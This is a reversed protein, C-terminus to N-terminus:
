HAGIRQGEGDFQRRGDGRGILRRHELERGGARVDHGHAGRGAERDRGDVVIARGRRQRSGVQRDAAGLQGREIGIGADEGPVHGGEARASAGIVLDIGARDEVGEVAGIRGIGGDDDGHRPVGVGVAHGVVPFQELHTRGGVGGGAVPISVAERVEVFPPGAGIGVDGAAEDAPLALVLHGAVDQLERELRHRAPGILDLAVVPVQVVRVHGPGVQIRDDGGVVGHCPPVGVRPGVDAVVADFDGGHLLEAHIARRPRRAEM